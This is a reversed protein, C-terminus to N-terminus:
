WLNAMTSMLEKEKELWSDEFKWVGLGFFWNLDFTKM